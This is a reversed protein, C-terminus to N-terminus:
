ECTGVFAAADSAACWPKGPVFAAADLEPADAATCAQLSTGGYACFWGWKRARYDLILEGRCLPKSEGSERCAVKLHEWDFYAATLKCTGTAGDGKAVTAGSCAEGSVAGSFRVKMSVSGDAEAYPRVPYVQLWAHETSAGTSPWIEVGVDHLAGAADSVEVRAAAATAKPNAYRVIATFAENPDVAVPPSANAWGGVATRLFELAQGASLGVLPSGLGGATAAVYQTSQIPAQGTSAISKTPMELPSIPPGPQFLDFAPMGVYLPRHPQEGPTWGGAYRAVTDFTYVPDTQTGTLGFEGLVSGQTQHILFTGAQGTPKTAEGVTYANGVVVHSTGDADSYWCSAADCDRGLVKSFVGLLDVHNWLPLASTRREGTNLAALQNDGPLLEGALNRVGDFLNGFYVSAPRMTWLEGPTPRLAAQAEANPPNGRLSIYQHTGQVNVHALICASVWKGEDVTMRERAIPVGSGDLVLTKASTMALGYQGSWAWTKGTSDLYAIATSGDYACRAFYRMFQPATAPNAEFWAGFSSVAQMGNPEITLIIGNPGLGNPGLGNPGLGNIDLGNPGLGNPGLGNPGLGNPGLGNPGLGNPGLGNPGLGNPGLGNPGLGNPGLGNPGLGNPGLGAQVDFVVLGMMAVFLRAARTM